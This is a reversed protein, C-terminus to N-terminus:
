SEQPGDIDRLKSFLTKDKVFAPRPSEVKTPLEIPPANSLAQGEREVKIQEAKILSDLFPANLSFVKKGQPSKLARCIAAFSYLRVLESAFRVQSLFKRKYPEKQWFKSPLAEGKLGAQRAVMLEALWQQYTVWGGGYKSEIRSKETQIAPM